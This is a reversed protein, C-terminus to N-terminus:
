LLRGQELSQVETTEFVAYHSGDPQIEQTRVSILYRNRELYRKVGIVTALGAPTSLLQNPVFADHQCETITYTGQMNREEPQQEAVQTANPVFADHKPERNTPFQIITGAALAEEQSHDDHLEQCHDNDQGPHPVSIEEPTATPVPQVFADHKPETERLENLEQDIATLEDQTFVEPDQDSDEAYDHLHDQITYRDEKIAQVIENIDADNRLGPLIQLHAKKCSRCYEVATRDLDDSGCDKCRRVREGGQHSGKPGPPKQISSPDTLIKGLEVTVTCEWQQKRGVKGLPKRNVTYNWSEAKPQTQNIRTLQSESLGLRRATQEMVPHFPLGFDAVDWFKDAAQEIYDIALLKDSSDMQTHDLKRVAHILDNIKRQRNDKEAHLRCGDCWRTNEETAKATAVTKAIYLDQALEATHERAEDREQRTQKHTQQEQALEQKTQEHAEREEEFQVQLTLKEQALESNETTVQQYLQQRIDVLANHDEAPSAKAALQELAQALLQEARACRAQLRLIATYPVAAPPKQPSNTANLTPDQQDYKLSQTVISM